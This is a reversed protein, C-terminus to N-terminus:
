RRGGGGGRRRSGRRLWDWSRRVCLAAGQPPGKRAVGVDAGEAATLWRM